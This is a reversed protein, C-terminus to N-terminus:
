MRKTSHQYFICYNISTIIQYEPAQFPVSVNTIEYISQFSEDTGVVL